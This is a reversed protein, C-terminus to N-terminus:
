RPLGAFPDVPVAVAAVQLLSVVVARTSRSPTSVGVERAWLAWTSGDAHSADFLAAGIDPRTSRLHDVLRNAKTIRNAEQNTM